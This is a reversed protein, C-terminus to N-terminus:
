RLEEEITTQTFGGQEAEEVTTWMYLGDSFKVLVADDPLGVNQQEIAQKLGIKM